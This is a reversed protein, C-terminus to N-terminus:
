RKRAIVHYLHWHKRTGIVTSGDEEIEDLHEVEFPRLLEDVEARTQVTIGSGAWEDRDGFLQGCFRGGPRISEVTRAWVEAFRDPPCFPLSFSANVLDCVPWRADEFRAVHTELRGEGEGVSAYLRDIAEQEGDIAVVSWGARLLEVSDRGAGCGLDVALGPTEFRAVADLLTTRPDDGAHEFYRKWPRWTKELVRLWNRHTIKAVAEDDFGAAGLAEVLKPLGAVGGLEDPVAAGEFDSGFAVHEVGIREAIYRV